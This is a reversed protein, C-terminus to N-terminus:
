RQPNNIYLHSEVAKITKELHDQIFFHGGNIFHYDSPQYTLEDWEKIIDIYKDHSGYLVVTKCNIKNQKQKYQYTEVIKYDARIIPVFLEALQSNDFIEESTGGLELVNRKFENNPLLHVQKKDTNKSHPASSGSFFIMEPENHNMNILKYYLEYAIKSGMSHGFLAYPTSNLQGSIKKYVDEVAENLNEYFSEGMRTGRGALEIPVIEISQKFHKKWKSYIASSGGAYPFCFLKMM